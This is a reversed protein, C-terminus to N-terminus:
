FAPRNLELGEVRGSEHEMYAETRRLRAGTRENRGPMRSLLYDKEGSRRVAFSHYEIRLVSLVYFRRRTSEDAERM